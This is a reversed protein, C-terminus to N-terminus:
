AEEGDEVIKFDHPYHATLWQAEWETADFEDGPYAVAPSRIKTTRGSDSRDHLVYITGGSPRHEWEDLTVGLFRVRPM